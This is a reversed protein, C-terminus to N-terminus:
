WVKSKQLTEMYLDFYQVAIVSWDFRSSIKELLKEPLNKMEKMDLAIQIKEYLHSPNKSSFLLPYESGVIDVNEKIDSCIVTCGAAIAELLIMSMAEIESPFIFLACNKMIERLLRESVLEEYLLINSNGNAQNEIYASYGPDHTFDGIIFLKQQFRGAKFAPILHHLGKTSDLRGCAFLFYDGKQIGHSKYNFLDPELTNCKITGNPIYHVIKGNASDRKSVSTLTNCCTVFCYESFLLFIKAFRNWKGRQYPNGHFTGIIKGGYRLRIMVSFFGFDSNHIHILDYRAYLLCHLSCLFFYIFPGLHKGKVSPIYIYRINKKPPIQKYADQRLYVIYEHDDPFNELLKEVVRDAGGVAPLKKIGLFAIKM